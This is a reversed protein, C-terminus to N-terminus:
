PRPSAALSQALIEPEEDVQLGRRLADRLEEESSKRYPLRGFWALILVSGLMGGLLLPWSYVHGGGDVPTIVYDLPPWDKLLQPTIRTTALALTNHLVHFIMCPLISGSQVAIYGIVVGVVCAILSQQLIAHALGFFVASYVIARWKHGLHRFGALIFGRFALEECVAPVVAIVLVLQWFPADALMQEVSQLADKVNESIPYLRAVVVQM